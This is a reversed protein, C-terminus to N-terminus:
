DSNKQRTTNNNATITNLRGTGYKNASASDTKKEFTMLCDTVLDTQAKVPVSFLIAFLIINAISFRFLITVHQIM